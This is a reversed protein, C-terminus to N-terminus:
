AAGEAANIGLQEFIAAFRCDCIIAHPSMRRSNM